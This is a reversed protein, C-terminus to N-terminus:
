LIAHKKSITHFKRFSEEDFVGLRGDATEVAVFEGKRVNVKAGEVIVQVYTGGNRAEFDHERAFEVVAKGNKGTYQIASVALPKSKFQQVTGVASDAINTM